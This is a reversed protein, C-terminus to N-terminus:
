APRWLAHLIRWGEPTAILHLYERYVASRVVVSAIGHHVDVIDVELVREDARRDTGAGAATFAVMSDSTTRRLDVTGAETELWGRKVLEPHLVRRMREADGTFWAGFYDRVCAEIEAREGLEAGASRAAEAAAMM